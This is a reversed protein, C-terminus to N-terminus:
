DKKLKMTPRKSEAVSSESKLDLILQEIFALDKEFEAPEPVAVTASAPNDHSHTNAKTMGEHFRIALADSLHVMRLRQTEIRDVGRRVVDCFIHEEVLREYADRLRGYLNKTHFEYDTASSGHLKKVPAFDIKIKGIRKAVSLGKWSVGAPDIKGANARDAFLAITAATVGRDDAERCLDNFFILDHTFVIVQRGKSEEAIRAAVRLGRERDLSSVPDDVVIPSSGATVAIETLFAALALARQEGESLIESSLKTLTTGPTTQFAAKTQGSKRALGIKLHMIDLAKREVEFQDTVAKTLHEDVLENAKQTIGKTQTEALAAAYLSDEKLLDRRKLIHDRAASLIKRDVLEALETALIQRQAPEDAKTLAEAEKSLLSSLDNLAAEPSIITPLDASPTAGQLIAIASTRRLEMSKKFTMVADALETNRKRIQEISTLSVKSTFSDFTQMDAIARAVLSEADGAAVALAGSVFAQFRSMRESAGVQLPQHCLVCSAIEAATSVVPYTREPYAEAISYDRAALWLRRWTESGVGVLPESAFLESAQLGAATRAEIAQEHLAQFEALKADSFSESLSSCEAALTKAWASLANVDASSVASAALLGTLEAIRTEDDVSFKSAGDIQTDTTKANLAKYFDQAKTTRPTAFAVTVLNLQDTVLKRAAELKEKLVLCLENLKYPLALGFPLFQIHNGNDVYLQAASTDFVAVQLLTESAPTGATWPVPFDGAGLDIVIEATQPGEFTGYVDTLVKLKAANETRTRCATRFIRVFGSKGSGNRGYIVTLGDPQFTLSASPVLRNVNAVNRIAKLRLPAGSAGATLHTKNLPVPLPPVPAIMFGVKQKVLNLLETQDNAVLTSSTALRRLADRRWPTLKTTSWELIDEIAGM